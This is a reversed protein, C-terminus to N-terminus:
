FAGNIGNEMCVNDIAYALESIFMLDDGFLENALARMGKKLNKWEVAMVLCGELLKGALFKKDNTTKMNVLETRMVDIYQMKSLPLNLENNTIYVRLSNLEKASWLKKLLDLKRGDIAKVAPSDIAIYDEDTKHTKYLREIFGVSVHHIIPLLSDTNAYVVDTLLSLLADEPCDSDDIITCILKSQSSDELQRIYNLLNNPQAIDNFNDIKLEMSDFALNQFRRIFGYCRQIIEFLEMNEIQALLEDVNYNIEVLGLDNLTQFCFILLSSQEESCNQKLFGDLITM